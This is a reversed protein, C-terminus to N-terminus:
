WSGQVQIHCGWRQTSLGLKVLQTECRRAWHHDDFILLLHDTTTQCLGGYSEVLSHLENKSLKATSNAPYGPKWSRELFGRGHRRLVTPSDYRHWDTHCPIRNPSQNIANM